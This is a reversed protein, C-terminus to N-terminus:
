GQLVRCKVTGPFSIPVLGVVVLINRVAIVPLPPFEDFWTNEAKVNNLFVCM